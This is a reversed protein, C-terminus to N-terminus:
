EVSFNSYKDYHLTEFIVHKMRDLYRNVSEYLDIMGPM